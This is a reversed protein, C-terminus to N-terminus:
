ARISDATIFRFGDNYGNLRQSTENLMDEVVVYLKNEVFSKAFEFCPEQIELLRTKQENYAEPNTVRLKEDIRMNQFNKIDEYLEPNTDRLKLFEDTIKM